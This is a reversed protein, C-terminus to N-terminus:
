FRRYAWNYQLGTVLFCNEDVYNLMVTCEIYGNYLSFNLAFKYEYLNMIEVTVEQMDDKIKEKFSSKGDFDNNILFVQELFRLSKEMINKENRFYFDISHKIGLEFDTRESNNDSCDKTVDFNIIRVDESERRIDSGLWGDTVHETFIVTGYKETTIQIIKSPM